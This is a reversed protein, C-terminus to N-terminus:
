NKSFIAQAGLLGREQESLFANAQEFQEPTMSVRLSDRTNEIADLQRQFGSVLDSVTGLGNSNVLLYTETFLTELLREKNDTNLEVGILELQPSYTSQFRERAATEMFTELETLEESTLIEALQNLVYNPDTRAEAEAPAIDGQQLAIGFALIDVYAAILEQRIADIRQPSGALSGLYGRFRLEVESELSVAANANLTTGLSQLLVSTPERTAAQGAGALPRRNAPSPLVGRGESGSRMVSEDINAAGSDGEADQQAASLVALVVAAFAILVAVIVLLQSKAIKM